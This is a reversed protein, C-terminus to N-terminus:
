RVAELQKRMKNVEKQMYTEAEYDKPDIPGSISRLARIRLEYSQILTRMQKQEKHTMQTAEM